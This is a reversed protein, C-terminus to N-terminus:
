SRLSHRAVEISELGNTYIVIFLAPLFRLHTASSIDRKQMGELFPNVATEYCSGPQSLNSCGSVPKKISCQSGLRSMIVALFKIHHQGLRISFQSNFM